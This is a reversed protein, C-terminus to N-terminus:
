FKVQKVEIINEEDTLIKIVEETLPSDLNVLSLAVGSKESRGLNFEAINQNERGLITGIKGIVGPLDESKIFLMIGEPKVEMHYEDVQVIRKHEGAFVTGCVILNGRKGTVKSEILNRYNKDDHVYSETVKIGRQKAIYHANVNNIPDTSSSSIFGMLVSMAVPTIEKIDGNCIIEMKSIEGGTLQSQLVGIYRALEVFPELMPSIEGTFPVNLANEAKNHLLFDAVQRCAGLSIGVKAEETSAGLHPTLIVNDAKLLPSDEPPENEFVDLAAGKIKGSKLAKSLAKEDILGGRACNIIMIGDKMLAMSEANIINRTDDNLPMHLSLYDVEKLLDNLDSAVAGSSSIIEDSVYPDYIQIEMEFAKARLAVEKGVKGFGLLGLKKNKLERGVLSSREWRGDKLSSDAYAVNRSLALMLAMTLEAAANSNVGPVNMVVIGKRTAADIDINDVGVGARCIVKLKEAAEIVDASVRTGSRMIHADADKIAKILEAPSLELKVEVEINKLESLLKIGEESVPDTILVKFKM